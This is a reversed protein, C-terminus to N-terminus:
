CADTESATGRAACDNAVFADVVGDFSEVQIPDTFDFRWYDLSGFFNGSDFVIGFNSAM